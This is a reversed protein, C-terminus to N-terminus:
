DKSIVLMGLVHHLWWWAQFYSSHNKTIHQTTNSKDCVYCKTNLAFFHIEECCKKATNNWHRTAFLICTKSYNYETCAEKKWETSYSCHQQDIRLKRVDCGNFQCNAKHHFGQATEKREPFQTLFSAKILPPQQLSSLVSIDPISHYWVCIFWMNTKSVMGGM